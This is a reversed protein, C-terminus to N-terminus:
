AFEQELYFNYQLQKSFTSDILALVANYQMKSELPLSVNRVLKDLEVMFQHVTINDYEAGFCEPCLARIKKLMPKSLKKSAIEKNKEMDSTHSKSMYGYKNYWSEGSLLISYVHLKLGYPKGNVDIFIKAVDYLVVKPIKADEFAHTLKQIVYTGSLKCSEGYKYKIHDLEIYYDPTEMVKLSFCECKSDDVCALGHIAIHDANDRRNITLDPFHHHLKAILLETLSHSSMIPSVKSTSKMTKRKLLTKKAPSPSRKRKTKDM